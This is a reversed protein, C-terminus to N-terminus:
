WLEEITCRHSKTTVDGASVLISFAQYATDCEECHGNNASFKWYQNLAGCKPCDFEGYKGGAQRILVGSYKPTGNDHFTIM